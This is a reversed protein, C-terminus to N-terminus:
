KMNIKSSKVMCTEVIEVERIKVHRLLTMEVIDYSIENIFNETLSVGGEENLVAHWWGRPTFVTEGPM